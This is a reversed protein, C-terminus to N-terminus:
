AFTIKVVGSGGQGSGGACCKAAAGCYTSLGSMGGGAPWNVYCACSCWYETAMNSHFKGIMPASGAQAYDSGQCKCGSHALKYGVTGMMGFDAGFIGCINCNACTQQGTFGNDDGNCMVGGCGGVVCFNSLNYGTIYSKCGMGATCTHSKSCRWSGGACITYQCGPVTRIQKVAYNGGAGGFAYSCCNSCTMGPGGGGGSWIEFQVSYVKDPVTWQCCMGCAQCVCGGNNSCEGCRLGRASYVWFSSYKNAAGLQLMDSTIENDPLQTTSIKKYSGYSAM